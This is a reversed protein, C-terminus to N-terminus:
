RAPSVPAGAEATQLTWLHHQLLPLRDNGWFVTDGVCFTPVGFAGRARAEAIRRDHLDATAREEALGRLRGADLGLAAAAEDCADAGIEPRDSAFIMDFLCRSFPAALGIRDAAVCALALREADMRRGRPERFPVAYFAAWAEADRRRWAWDYQGSVPSGAFPDSGGAAILRGSYLPLWHFRCGYIREIREIQTSALYSYRSGIGYYFDIEIPARTM